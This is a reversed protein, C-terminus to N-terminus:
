EFPRVIAAAPALPVRSPPGSLALGLGKLALRLLLTNLLPLLPAM